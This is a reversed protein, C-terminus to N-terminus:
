LHCTAETNSPVSKILGRISPCVNTKGLHDGNSLRIPYVDAHTHIDSHRSM